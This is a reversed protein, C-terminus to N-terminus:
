VNEIVLDHTSQVVSTSYTYFNVNEHFCLNQADNVVNARFNRLCSKRRRDKSTSLRCFVEVIPVEVLMLLVLRFQSDLDTSPQSKASLVLPVKFIHTCLYSKIEIPVCFDTM